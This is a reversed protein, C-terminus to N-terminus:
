LECALGVPLPGQKKILQDLNPGEVYEMVLYHTGRASDADYVTVIHPHDLRIAAEVERGFLEPPIVKLAFHKARVTDWAKYVRGMGGRGLQDVLRYQGLFLGRAKGTLLKRAQFRTLVGQAVLARALVRAQDSQPLRQAAEDIQRKSLLRSRRLQKFFTVRDM